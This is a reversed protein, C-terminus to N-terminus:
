IPRLSTPMYKRQTSWFLLIGIKRGDWHEVRTYHTYAAITPFPCKFIEQIGVM